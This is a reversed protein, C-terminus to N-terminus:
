RRSRSSSIMPVSRAWTSSRPLAGRATSTRTWTARAEVARGKRYEDADMDGQPWPRSISEVLVFFHDWCGANKMILPELEEEREMDEM